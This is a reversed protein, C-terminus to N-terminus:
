LREYRDVNLVFVVAGGVEVELLEPTYWPYHEPDGGLVLPVMRRQCKEEAIALWEDVREDDVGSILTTQGQRLLGGSTAVTTVRFDREVLASVLVPADQDQVIAILLKVRVEEPGNRQGLGPGIIAARDDRCVCSELM